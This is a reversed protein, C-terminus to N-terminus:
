RIRHLILKAEEIPISVIFSINSVSSYIPTKSGRYSNFSLLEELREIEVRLKAEEIPISVSSNASNM